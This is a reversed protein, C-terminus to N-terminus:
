KRRINVHSHAMTGFNSLIPMSPPVVPQTQRIPSPNYPAQRQTSNLPDFINSTDSIVQNDRPNDIVQEESSLATEYNSLPPASPIVVPITSTSNGGPPRPPRDRPRPRDRSNAPNSTDYSPRDSPNILSEEDSSILGFRSGPRALSFDRFESYVSGTDDTVNISSESNEDSRDSVLLEKVDVTDRHTEFRRPVYPVGPGPGSRDRRGRERPVIVTESEGNEDITPLSQSNTTANRRWFRWVM